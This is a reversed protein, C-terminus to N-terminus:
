ACLVQRHVLSYIKYSFHFGSQKENTLHCIVGIDSLSLSSGEIKVELLYSQCIHRSVDPSRHLGVTINPTKKQPVMKNEVLFRDHVIVFFYFFKSLEEVPNEDNVM